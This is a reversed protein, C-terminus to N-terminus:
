ADTETSPATKEAEGELKLGARYLFYALLLVGLISFPPILLIVGLILKWRAVHEMRIEIEEILNGDSM